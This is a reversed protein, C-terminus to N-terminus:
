LEQWPIMLLFIGGSKSEEVSIIRNELDINDRTLSIIEGKRMGTNLAILVSLRLHSVKCNEVLKKIEDHSLYRTKGPPEKLKKVQKVPNERVKGWSIGLNYMRNLTALERNVTSASVSKLRKIKYQEIDYSTIQGIFIESFEKGLSNLNVKHFIYTNWKKSSECYELFDLTFESFLIPSPRNVDYKGELIETQRKALLKEALKKSTGAVERVRKGGPLYYDIYWKRNREYIGM